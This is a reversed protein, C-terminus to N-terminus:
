ASAALPVGTELLVEAAGYGVVVVDTEVEHTM